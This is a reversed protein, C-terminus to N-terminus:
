IDEVAYIKNSLEHFLSIVKNYDNYYIQKSNFSINHKKVYNFTEGTDLCKYTKNKHNIKIDWGGNIVHNNRIYLYNNNGECTLIIGTKTM